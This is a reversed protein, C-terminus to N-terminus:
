MINAQGFGNQSFVLNVDTASTTCQVVLKLRDNTNVAVDTSVFVAALRCPYVTGQFDARMWNYMAGNSQFSPHCRFIDKGIKKPVNDLILFTVVEIVDKCFAHMTKVPTAGFIGRIPDALPVHDYTNDLAHQSWQQCLGNNPCLAIQAMPGAYM